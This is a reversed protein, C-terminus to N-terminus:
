FRWSFNVPCCFGTLLRVWRWSFLGSEVFILECINKPLELNWSSFRCKLVLLSVKSIKNQSKTNADNFTKKKLYFFELKLYRWKLTRWELWSKNAVGSYFVHVRHSTITSWEWAMRIIAKYISFCHFLFCCCPCVMGYCKQM